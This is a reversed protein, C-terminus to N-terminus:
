LDKLFTLAEREFAKPNDVSSWHSAAPIVVHRVDKLASELGDLIRHFNEPSREGAMLLTPARIAEADTRTFPARQEKIQGILTNANERMRQRTEESLSSWGGPGHLVDITPALGEDIEGRRIREAAKAYLPGLAIPPSRRPQPPELSADLAGGPEALTLTRVLDPFSQAVRFAIHGGRSHGILHVPATDLTAIFTAVDKIHQEVTFDDGEGDWREPWCHRLSVAITRYHAGFSEMQPAWSRYDGLTGHVLVLPVGAGREIFAMDYGNVRLTPM